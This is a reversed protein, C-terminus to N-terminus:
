FLGQDAPLRSIPATSTVEAAVAPFALVISAGSEVPEAKVHGGHAVVVNRTFALGLGAGVNPMRTTAFPEFIHERISEPIGCGNDAVVILRHYGELRSSVTISTADAEFANKFVEAFAERCRRVDVELVAACTPDLEVRQAQAKVLRALLDRVSIRAPYLQLPASYEIASQAVDACRQTADRIRGLVEGDEAPLGGKAVLLDTYGVIPQLRNNLVHAFGGALVRASEVQERAWSSEARLLVERTRRDSSRAFLLVAQFAAVVMGIILWTFLGNAPDVGQWRWWAYVAQAIGPLLLLPALLREVRHTAAFASHYFRWACWGTGAIILATGMLQAAADALVFQLGARLAGILVVAPWLWGPVADECFRCMGAVLLGVFLTGLFPYALKAVLLEASMFAAGGAAFLTLWALAWFRGGYGAGVNWLTSLLGVLVLAAALFYASGSM